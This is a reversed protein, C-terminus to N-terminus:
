HSGFGYSLSFLQANGLDGQPVYAYDVKWAGWHFGIGATLGTLGGDAEAPGYVYGGRLSFDTDEGLPIVYETGIRYDSVWNYFDYEYDGSFLWNPQPWYALGGHLLLTQPAGRNTDLPTGLGGLALNSGMNYSTLAFDMNPLIFHRLKIGADFASGEDFAYDYGQRIIKYVLGASGFDGVNVAVAVQGTFDFDEFSGTANGFNDYGQDQTYLYNAGLGWAGFGFAPVGLAVTEDNIDGLWAMHSAELQVERLDTLGAPNYDISFADDAAASYAGAMAAPRAGPILLFSSGGSVGSGIGLSEARLGCAALLFFFFAYHSRTM